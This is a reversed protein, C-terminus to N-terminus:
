SQLEAFVTKLYIFSKFFLSDCVKIPPPLLALLQTWSEKIVHIGAKEQRKIRDKVEKEKKLKEEEAGFKEGIHVHGIYL